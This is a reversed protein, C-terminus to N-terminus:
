NFLETLINNLKPGISENAAAAAATAVSVTVFGDDLVFSQM